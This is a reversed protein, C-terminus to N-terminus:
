YTNKKDDKVRRLDVYDYYKTCKNCIVADRKGKSVNTMIGCVRCPKYTYRHTHACKTAQM